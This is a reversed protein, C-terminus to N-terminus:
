FNFISFRLSSRAFINCLSTYKDSLLGTIAPPAAWVYRVLILHRWLEARVFVGSPPDFLATKQAPAERAFLRRTAFGRYSLICAASDGDLSSYCLASVLRSSPHCDAPGCACHGNDNLRASRSM